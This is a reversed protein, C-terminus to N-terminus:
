QRHRGPERPRSIRWGVLGFTMSAAALVAGILLYQRLSSTRYMEVEDVAMAMSLDEPLALVELPPAYMSDSPPRHWGPDVDFDDVESGTVLSTTVARGDLRFGVRVEDIWPSGRRGGSVVHVEVDAVTVARGRDLLEIAVNHAHEDDVATAFVGAAFVGLVITWAM